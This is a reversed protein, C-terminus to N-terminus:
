NNFLRKYPNRLVASRLQDTPSQGADEEPFNAPLTAIPQPLPAASTSYPAFVVTQPVATQPVVAARTAPKPPYYANLEGPTGSSVAGWEPLATSSVGAGQQVSTASGFQNQTFFGPQVSPATLPRSDFDHNVIEAQHSPYNVPPATMSSIMAYFSSSNNKVPRRIANQKPSYLLPPQEACFRVVRAVPGYAGASGLGLKQGVTGRGFGHGWVPCPKGAPHRHGPILCYWYLGSCGADCGHEEMMFERDLSACPSSGSVPLTGMSLSVVFTFVIILRM